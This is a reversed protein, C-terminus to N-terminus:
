LTPDQLSIILSLILVLHHPAHICVQLLFHLPQFLLLIIEHSYKLLLLLKYSDQLLLLNDSLTIHSVLLQVNLCYRHELKCLFFKYLCKVHFDVLTIILVFRVNM